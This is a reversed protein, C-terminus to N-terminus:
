LRIGGRYTARGSLNIKKTRNATHKFFWKDMGVDKIESRYM